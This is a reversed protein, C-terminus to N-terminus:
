WACGALADEDAKMVMDETIEDLSSAMHKVGLRTMEQRQFGPSRGSSLGIFPAGLAKAHEGFWSLDDIFLIEDLPHGVWGSLEQIGPRVENICFYDRDHSFYSLWPQM